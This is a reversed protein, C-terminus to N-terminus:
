GGWSEIAGDMNNGVDHAVDKIIVGLAFGTVEEVVVLITTDNAGGKLFHPPWMWDSGDM